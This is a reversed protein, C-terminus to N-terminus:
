WAVALSQILCTNPMMMWGQPSYKGAPFLSQLQQACFCFGFHHHDASCAIVNLKANHTACVLSGIFSAYRNAHLSRRCLATELIGSGRQIQKNGACALYCSVKASQLVLQKRRNCDSSLVCGLRGQMNGHVVHPSTFLQETVFHSCVNCLCCVALASCVTCFSIPHKCTM